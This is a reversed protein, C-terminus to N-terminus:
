FHTLFALEGSRYYRMAIGGRLAEIDAITVDAALQNKPIIKM